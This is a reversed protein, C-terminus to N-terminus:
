NKKLQKNAPFTSIIDPTPNAIGGANFFHFLGIRGM